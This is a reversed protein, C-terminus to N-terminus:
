SRPVLKNLFLVASACGKGVNGKGAAVAIKGASSSDLNEEGSAVRKRQSRSSLDEDAANPVGRYRGVLTRELSFDDANWIKVTGDSSATAM